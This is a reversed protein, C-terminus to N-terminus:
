PKESRGSKGLNTEAFIVPGPELCVEIDLQDLDALEVPRPEGARAAAVVMEQVLLYLPKGPPEVRPSQGNVRASRLAVLGSASELLNQKHPKGPPISGSLLFERLTVRAIRLLERKDADSLNM